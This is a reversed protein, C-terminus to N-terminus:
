NRPYITESNTVVFSDKPDAALRGTTTLQVVVGTGVSTFNSKSVDIMGCVPVGDKYLTSNKFEYTITPGTVPGSTTGDIATDFTLTTGSALVTSKIAGRIDKEIRHLATRNREQVKSFTDHEVTGRSSTLVIQVLPIGIIALVAFYISVELLTFGRERDNTRM